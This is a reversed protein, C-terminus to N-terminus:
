AGAGELGRHGSDLDVSAEVSMGARLQGLLPQDQDLVIKVPMRQVVKTFNGTANDPTVAAFTVGTAPAISDIHGNLPEGPFQRGAPAGGAGRAHPDAPNGPFQGGRVGAAAAGGGAGQQGPHRLRRRADRSPRGHRRDARATRHAVSGTRGTGAGSRRTAGGGARGARQATLIDTRQRATPLAARGQHLHASAVVQRSQAQQANQVTGAGVGALASYRQLDAQALTLESQSVDVTARAQDIVSKQQVLAAQANALQARANALDARAATLAVQFDRDDILALVQGAKVPQNDEVLVESIFGAVQPAVVTFDATVYADNTHQHRGDRLLLWAGVALVLM